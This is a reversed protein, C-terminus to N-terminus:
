RVVEGDEIVPVQGAPNMALLANSGHAGGPLDVHVVDHNIGAVSAFLVVRHAHGSLLFSHIRVANFMQITRQALSPAPGM